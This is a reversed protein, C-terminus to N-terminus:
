RANEAQLLATLALVFREVTTVAQRPPDFRLSAILDRDRGLCRTPWRTGGGAAVAPTAGKGPPWSLSRDPPETLRNNLQQRRM